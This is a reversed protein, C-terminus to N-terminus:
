VDNLQFGDMWNGGRIVTDAPEDLRQEAADNETREQCIRLHEHSIKDRWHKRPRSWNSKGPFGRVPTVWSDEQDSTQVLDASQQWYLSDLCGTFSFKTRGRRDVIEDNGTVVLLGSSIVSLSSWCSDCSQRWDWSGRWWRLGFLAADSSIDCRDAAVRSCSWWVDSRRSNWEVFLWDTHIKVASGRSDARTGTLGPLLQSIKTRVATISQSVSWWWVM